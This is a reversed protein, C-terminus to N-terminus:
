AGDLVLVFEGKPKQNKYKEVASEVMGRWVEEYIKTLERAVTLRRGPCWEALQQLTKQLRHPSEYMVVTRKEESLEKLLTQRGKKVPLFGVYVFKDTPLGSVSLAAIVATAGPIPIVEAGVEIAAQVLGYGPDSIGPTGADSVLALSRGEKLYRKLKELKGPGSYGHWSEMGTGIGFHRLLNGTHRTDEAVVLDVNKLIELARLTIDQLNGIPTAVIYLKGM